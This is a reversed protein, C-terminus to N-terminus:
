SVQKLKDYEGPKCIYYYARKQYLLEVVKMALPTSHM